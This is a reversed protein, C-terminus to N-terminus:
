LCANLCWGNDYVIYKGCNDYVGDHLLLYTDKAGCTTNAGLGQLHNALMGVAVLGVGQRGVVVPFQQGLLGALKMRGGHNYGVLGVVLSQLFGQAVFRIGLDIGAAVGHALDHLSTRDRHHQRRHHSETTEGRRNAGDPGSLRDAQGVLLGQDHRALQDALKGLLITHGDQGDIGFM